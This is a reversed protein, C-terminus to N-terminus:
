PSKEPSPHICSRPFSNAAKCALSKRVLALSSGLGARTACSQRSQGGTFLLRGGSLVYGKIAHVEKDTMREAGEGLILLDLGDYGITRDPAKGPMCAYDSIMLNQQSSDYESVQGKVFKNRLFTTSSTIDSILGVNVSSATSGAQNLKLTAEDQNCDLTITIEDYEGSPVYVIFSRITKSPLEVPIRAGYSQGKITVFGRDNKLPNEIYLRVPQFPGFSNQETWVYEFSLGIQDGEQVNKAEEVTGQSYAFQGAGLCLFLVLPRGRSSGM